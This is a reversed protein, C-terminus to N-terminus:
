QHIADQAVVHATIFEAVAQSIPIQTAKEVWLWQGIPNVELFVYQGQPTVIFDICGYHLNLAKMLQHCKETIDPPLSFASHPVEESLIQKRWDAQTLESVQSDIKCAFVQNGILTVRLEFAKEVYGQLSVPCNQLTDLQLLLDDTTVRKTFHVTHCRELFDHFTPNSTSQPFLDIGYQLTKQFVGKLGSAYLKASGMNVSKIAIDAKHELFTKAAPASNGLYTQPIDLGVSQAILLQLPKQSAKLDASRKNAWVVNPLYYELSDLFESSEREIYSRIDSKLAAPKPTQWIRNWVFSIDKGDLEWEPTQLLVRQQNPLYAISVEEPFQDFSIRKIEIQSKDLVSKVADYHPDDAKTIALVTM